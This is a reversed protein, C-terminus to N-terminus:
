TRTMNEMNTGKEQQIDLSPFFFVSGAQQIHPGLDTNFAYICIFLTVFYLKDHMKAREDNTFHHKHFPVKVFMECVKM